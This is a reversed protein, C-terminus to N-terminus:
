ANSVGLRSSGSSDAVTGTEPIYQLNDGLKIHDRITCFSERNGTLRFSLHIWCSKKGNYNLALTDFGHPLEEILTKAADFTEKRNFGDLRIDMAQGKYHLNNISSDEIDQRNRYGALIQMNPFLDYTPEAIAEALAKLNKVIQQKSISGARLTRAGGKTFASLQFRSSLQLETPYEQLSEIVETGALTYKSKTPNVSPTETQSVTGLDLNEERYIGRNILITRYDTGDGEDISEYNNMYRASRSNVELEPMSPPIPTVVEIPTTPPEPENALTKPQQASAQNLPDNFRVQAGDIHTNSSSYSSRQGAIQEILGQGFYYDASGKLYYGTSGDVCRSFTGGFHESYNGRRVHIGSGVVNFTENGGIEIDSNGAVRKTENGIVDLSYDGKVITSYNGAITLAVNNNIIVNCEGEINITSGGRVYLNTDGAIYQTENGSVISYLNRSSQIFRDGVVHDVLTGNHDYELFSGPSSFVSLREAGPTDDFEMAHGAESQYVKNYPYEANYPVDSTEWTPRNLDTQEQTLSLSSVAKRVGLFRSAEKVYVSTKDLEEGRVLRSLDSENTYKPYSYKKTALGFGRYEKLNAAGGDFVSGDSLTDGISSATASLSEVGLNTPIGKELFKTSELARRTNLTGTLDGSNLSYNALLKGASTYKGSNLQSIISSASFQQETTNHGFSALADYMSSTVPKRVNKSLLGKLESPANIHRELETSAESESVSGPYTKTVPKGLWTQQGYGITFNGDSDQYPSESFTFSKKINDLGETSIKHGSVPRAEELTTQNATSGTVGKSEVLQGDEGETISNLFDLQRSNQKYAMGTNEVPDQPVGPITGIMVPQQKDPDTFIIAVITGVVVGPNSGVGSISASTVPNIPICWPLDETPLKATDSNHVGHVRVKCRGIKLPDNRNEVIGTYINTM